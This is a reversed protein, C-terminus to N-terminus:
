RDARWRLRRRRVMRARWVHLAAFGVGGALAALATLLGSAPQLRVMSWLLVLSATGVAGTVAATAAQESRVRGKRSRGSAAEAAALAALTVIALLPGQASEWPKASSVV